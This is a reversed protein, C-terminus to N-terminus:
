RIVVSMGGRAKFRIRFTTEGPVTSSDREVLGVHKETRVPGFDVAAAVDKAVSSDVTVLGLGNGGALSALADDTLGELEIPIKASNGADPLYLVANRGGIRVAGPMETASFRLGYHYWPGYQVSTPYDALYEDTGFVRIEGMYNATDDFTWLSNKRWKSGSGGIAIAADQSGHLAACIRGGTSNYQSICRLPADATALVTMKGKLTLYSYNYGSNAPGDSLYTYVELTGGEAILNGCAMPKSQSWSMTGGHLMTLSAGPFAYDDAPSLRLIKSFRYDDGAALVATDEGAAGSSDTWYKQSYTATNWEYRGCDQTLTWTEALASRVLGAACGVALLPPALERLRFIGGLSM